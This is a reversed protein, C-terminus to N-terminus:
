GQLEEADEQGQREEEQTGNQKLARERLDCEIAENSDDAWFVLEKICDLEQQAVLPCNENLAQIAYIIHALVHRLEPEYKVDIM